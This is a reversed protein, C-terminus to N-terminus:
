WLIPYIVNNGMCRFAHALRGTHQQFFFLTTTEDVKFEFGDAPYDPVEGVYGLPFRYSTQTQDLFVNLSLGLGSEISAFTVEGGSVSGEIWVWRGISTPLDFGGSGGVPFNEDDMNGEFSERLIPLPIYAAPVFPFENTKVVTWPRVGGSSESDTAQIYTPFNGLGKSGFLISM